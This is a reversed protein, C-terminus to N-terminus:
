NVDMYRADPWNVPWRLNGNQNLEAQIRQSTQRLRRLLEAGVFITEGRKVVIKPKFRLVVPWYKYVYEYVSKSLSVMVGSGRIM